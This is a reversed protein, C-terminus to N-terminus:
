FDKQFIHLFESDSICRTIRLGTVRTDVMDFQERAQLLRQPAQSEGCYVLATHPFWRDNKMSTYENCYEDYRSHVDQYLHMLASPITPLAIICGRIFVGVGYYSIPFASHRELLLEAWDLITKEDLDLYTALTIHASQEDDRGLAKQMNEIKERGQKDLTAVLAYKSGEM